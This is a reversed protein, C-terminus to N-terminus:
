KGELLNMHVGVLFAYALSHSRKFTYGNEDKEWVSKSVVSWTEGILHKKGPRIIALFMSLRPISNVPEPMKHLSDYHNGLQVLQEVFKRDNLKNWNPDRMLEILHAENKVQEYVHNNLLDLKFYGRKDMENYDVSCMNTIPNYPVPCVYVGSNHRKIPNAKLMAAPTHEILELLKDRNPLDIDIDSQFKM